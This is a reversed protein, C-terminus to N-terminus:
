IAAVAKILCGGVLPQEVSTVENWRMLYPHVVLISIELPLFPVGKIATTCLAVINTCTDAHGSRRQVSNTEFGPFLDRGIEILAFAGDAAPMLGFAQGNVPVLM